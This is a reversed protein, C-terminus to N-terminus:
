QGEELLGTFAAEDIITVGLAEARAMKSGPNEGAVVFDTKKSVSSAVKGGAQEIAKVAQDRTYASLGGTIVLTKGSLPGTPAAPSDDEMKVGAAALKDIIRRNRSSDFFSRIRGAVIPGVEEVEMLEGAGALALRDISGFHRALARATPPGVDRIGLGVLVRALGRKKSAELSELLQDAKKDAFLPLQLLDDKTLSYLDGLDKVFGMDRLAIVTKYGLGEIDMAGRSGFHFLGEVGRSPCDENPCRWVAEGEPRELA